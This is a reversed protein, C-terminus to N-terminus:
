LVKKNGVSYEIYLIFNTVMDTKNNDMLINWTLGLYWYLVTETNQSQVAYSNEMVFYMGMPKTIAHFYYPNIIM